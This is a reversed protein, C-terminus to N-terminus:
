SAPLDNAFIERLANRVDKGARVLQAYDSGIIQHAEILSKLLALVAIEEREQSSKANRYEQADMKKGNTQQPAQERPQHGHPTLHKYTTVLKLDGQYQIEYREGRELKEAKDAYFNVWLDDGEPTAGKVGVTKRGEKKPAIALVKIVTTYKPLLEALTTM